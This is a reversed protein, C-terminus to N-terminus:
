QQGAKMGTHCGELLKGQDLHKGLYLDNDSALQSFVMSINLNNKNSNEM